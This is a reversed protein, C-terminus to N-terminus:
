KKSTRADKLDNLKQRLKKKLEDRRMLEAEHERQKRYADMYEAIGYKWMRRVANLEEVSYIQKFQNEFAEVQNWFFKEFEKLDM